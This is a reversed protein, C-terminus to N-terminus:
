EGEFIDAINFLVWTRSATISVAGGAAYVNELIIHEKDATLSVGGGIGLKGSANGSTGSLIDSLRASSFERRYSDSVIGMGYEFDAGYEIGVGLTFYVTGFRDIILRAEGGFGTGRSFGLVMFDANKEFGHLTGARCVQIIEKCAIEKIEDLAFFNNKTGSVATAAGATSGAAAGIIGSAIQHLSPDKLKALEKQVMENLGAGAAGSVFGAGTMDSMIGGVMAHLAIKEPSGEDWGNKAAIIHIQKYAFEGFLKAMVQKEEVTQKDFIEGLVNLADGPTRSLDSIDQDPNNRIEITGEAIASKTTGSAEGKAPVDVVPTVGKTNKVETTNGKLNQKSNFEAGINEASYEAKNEVDSYVLNGTSLRNKEAAAKSAIVAGKLATTEGVNIDFGENGAYIGAQEVTSKYDSEMSSMVGSGNGQLKAFTGHATDIKSQIEAGVSYGDSEYQKRKQLSEISLNGGIDMQVKDGSATSGVIDMDGGAAIKLTDDAKISTGTHTLISENATNGAQSMNGFVSVTKGALGFSVGMGFSNSSSDFSTDDINQVAELKINEAASLSVNQGSIKSGAVEINGKDAIIAIDGKASVESGSAMTKNSSLNSESKETGIGVNIALADGANKIGKLNDVAEKGTEYLKAAYM